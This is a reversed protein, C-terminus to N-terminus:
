NSFFPERFLNINNKIEFVNTDEQKNNGNAFDTCGQVQCWRNAEEKQMAETVWLWSYEVIIDRGIFLTWLM